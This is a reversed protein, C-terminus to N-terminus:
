NGAPICSCDRHLQFIPDTFGCLLQVHYLSDHEMEAGKALAETMCTRIQKVENCYTCATAASCCTDNINLLSTVSKRFSHLPLNQSEFCLLMVLFAHHFIYVKSVKQSCPQCPQCSSAKCPKTCQCRSM